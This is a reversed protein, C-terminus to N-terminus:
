FAKYHPNPTKAERHRPGPDGAEEGGLSCRLVPVGLTQFGVEASAVLRVGGTEGWTSPAQGAPWM